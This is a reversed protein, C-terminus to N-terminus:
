RVAGERQEADMRFRIGRLIESNLSSGNRLAEKEVWERMEHPMRLLFRDAEEKRVMLSDRQLKIINLIYGLAM